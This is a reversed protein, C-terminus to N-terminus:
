GDASSCNCQKARKWRMKEASAKGLKSWHSPDTYRNRAAEILEDALRRASELTVFANSGVYFRELLGSNIWEYIKPKACSSYECAGAISMGVPEIGPPLASKRPAPAEASAVSNM